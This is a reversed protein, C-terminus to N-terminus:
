NQVLRNFMSVSIAFSVVHMLSLTVVTAAEAQPTGPPGYGLGAGIPLWLSLLLGITAIILYHRGPRKSFRQVVAFVVAGISLYVFSAGAIQGVGAGPWATVEPFISGALYYLVINSISSAGIALLTTLVLSVLSTRSAQENTRTGEAITSMHKELNPKSLTGVTDCSICAKYGMLLHFKM